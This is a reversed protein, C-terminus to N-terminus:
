GLALTVRKVGREGPLDAVGFGLEKCMTLMNENDALVDGYLTAIGVTRAYDILRHMLTYGLGRGKLDQRLLIAYEAETQDANAILRAVGAVHAHGDDEPWMALFAMERAYDIQSLRAALQDPLRKMPHLFRFRIDEPASRDVLEKLGEKDEPRVPRVAVATGDRLCLEGELERPYPRIALRTQAGAAAAAVRIRADLAVVGSGNAILPNIDLEKVEAFDTALQGVRTLADRIAGMDAPAEDRYGKLLQYVQTQEIMNQALVDNLPPLAVATDGLVEVEKGGRGFVIVPGFQPDENLGVILEHAGPRRVMEQVTVGDIRADPYDRRLRELMASAAERVQDPTSLNLVVGGVDSKHTIDNSLVKVAVLDGMKFGRAVQYAAEADAATYTRAVPVGYADLVRKAEYESLWGRGESLAQDVITRVTGRDPETEPEDDHSAPSQMLMTQNRNYRVVHMFARVAEEATNYTPVRAATFLRRAEVAATEGLWNTLVPKGNGKLADRVARAADLSPAIAQPCNIVLVADSGDDGLLAELAAVYREPPADGIIDVPNAGSWTPPLSANLRELTKPALDALKGGREILADTALVGIGGGNTVIALRDGLPRETRTTPRRLDSSLTQVADFLEQMDYVRLM